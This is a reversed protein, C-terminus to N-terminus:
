KSPIVCAACGSGPRLAIRRSGTSDSRARSDTDGEGDETGKRDTRQNAMNTRGARASTSSARTDKGRLRAILPRSRSRHRPGAFTARVVNHPNASGLSKTMINSIGPRRSWRGCLQRGRHHRHRGAGAEAACVAPASTGSSRTRFRRGRGDARSDPEEQGSRDGEQDGVASGEGQRHRLRGCRAGDGVVVLASFSLNKGGKVVKTVRNISVVNDKIDLQSPDIRERTKM